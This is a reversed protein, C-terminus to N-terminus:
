IMHQISSASRGGGTQHTTRHHPRVLLASDHFRRVVWRAIIFGALGIAAVALADSLRLDLLFYALVGTISGQILVQHVWPGHM